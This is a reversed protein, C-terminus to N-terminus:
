GKDSAVVPNAGTCQPKASRQTVAEGRPWFAVGVYQTYSFFPSSALLFSRPCFSTKRRVGRKKSREEEEQGLLVKEVRAANEAGRDLTFVIRPMPKINIKKMLLHQLRGAERGLTDLAAAAKAEPVVSVRIDAHELKRDAEVAMITVLAGDFELERAIIDSLQQQILSEVRESRYFRMPLLSSQPPLLSSSPIM